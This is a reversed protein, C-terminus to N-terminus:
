LRVAAGIGTSVAAAVFAAVVWNLFQSDTRVCSCPVFPGGRRLSGLHCEPALSRSVHLGNRWRWSAVLTRHSAAEPSMEPTPHAGVGPCPGSPAALQSCVGKPSLQESSRGLSQGSNRPRKTLPWGIPFGAPVGDRARLV